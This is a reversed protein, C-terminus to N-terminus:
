ENSVWTRRVGPWYGVRYSEVRGDTKSTFPILTILSLSSVPSAASLAHVGPKDLASDGLVTRVVPLALGGRFSGVIRARLKGSRGRLSDILVALGRNSSPAAEAPAEAVLVSGLIISDRVLSDRLASDRRASLRVISDGSVGLTAGRVSAPAAAVASATGGAAAVSLGVLTMARRSLRTARSRSHTM